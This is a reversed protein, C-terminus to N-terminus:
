NQFVIKMDTNLFLETLRLYKSKENFFNDM